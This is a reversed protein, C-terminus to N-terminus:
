EYILGTPSDTLGGVFNRNGNYDDDKTYTNNYITSASCAIKTYDTQSLM